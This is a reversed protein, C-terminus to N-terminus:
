SEVTHERRRRLRRPQTADVSPQQSVVSQGVTPGARFRDKLRLFPREIWSYSLAAVVVTLGLALGLDVVLPLEVGVRSLAAPVLPSLVIPFHYLYLGYARRGLWVIVRGSLVSGAWPREAEITGVIVVMTLLTAVGFPGTLWVDPLPLPMMTVLVLAVLALLAGAGGARQSRFRRSASAHRLIALCSGVVMPLARWYM